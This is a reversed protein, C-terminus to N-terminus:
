YQAVARRLDAAIQARLWAPELVEVASGWSRIWPQMEEPRAVQVRLLCGGEPLEELTQSPHWQREYVRSMMEPTFRLVVENKEDGAMIRWGTALHAELDFSEPITYRKKLLMASELRDLKFTRLDEAWEDHCIIYFGSPTPEIAYPSIVRQRLLGSRPSRYGVKVKHGTGWGEAITELVASQRQNGQRQRVREIARQLHDLLSPPLIGALKQLAAIVHPNREDVTRSLLLGAMVLTLAEHFGLRVNALYRTRNIGYRGNSQWLPVGQGELFELDRYITRRNVELKESIENVSLGNPTMLLLDEIERLRATRNALRTM